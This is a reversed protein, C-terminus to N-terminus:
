TLMIENNSNFNIYRTEDYKEVAKNVGNDYSGSLDNRYLINDSPAGEIDKKFKLRIHSKKTAYNVGNNKLVNGDGSFDFELYPCGVYPISSHNFNPNFSPISKVENGSIKAENNFELLSIASMPTRWCYRFPITLMPKSGMQDTKNWTLASAGSKLPFIGYYKEWYLVDEGDPGCKFVYASAAYDLEKMYVHSATRDWTNVGYGKLNYSPSWAGRSVNDIYILWIRLLNVISLDSLEEFACNLVQGQKGNWNVGYSVTYDNYSKGVESVELDDDPIEWSAIQGSLLMNFNNSDGCRDCNTLLKFLSPNLKWLISVDTSNKVQQNATGVLGNGAYTLINLDPRTFFVHTTMKNFALNTDPTKFRNYGYYKVARAIETKGHVQLGLSARMTKLKDELTQMKSYRIDGPIIQYDYKASLLNSGKSVQTPFAYANQHESYNNKLLEERKVPNEYITKHKVGEIASDDIKLNSVNGINKKERDNLDRFGGVAESKYYGDEIGMYSGSGVQTVALVTSPLKAVSTNKSSVQSYRYDLEDTNRFVPHSDSNMNSSQNINSLYEKM